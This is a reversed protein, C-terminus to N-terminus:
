RQENWSRFFNYRKDRVLKKRALSFLRCRPVYAAGCPHEGAKSLFILRDFTASITNRVYATLVFTPLAFTMLLITLHFLTMQVRNDYTM